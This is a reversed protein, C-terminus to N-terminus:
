HAMLAPIGPWPLTVAVTAFTVLAGTVKVVQGTLLMDRFYPPVSVGGVDIATAPVTERVVVTISLLPSSMVAAVVAGDNVQSLEWGAMTFPVAEEVEAM